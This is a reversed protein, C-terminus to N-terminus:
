ISRPNTARFFLSAPCAEIRFSHGPGTARSMRARETQGWCASSPLLPPSNSAMDSQRLASKGTRSPRCPTQKCFAIMWLTTHEQSNSPEICELFRNLTTCEFFFHAWPGLFPFTGHRRGGNMELLQITDGESDDSALCTRGLERAHNRFATAEDPVCHACLLRLGTAVDGDIPIAANPEFHPNLKESRKRLVALHDSRCRGSACRRRCRM